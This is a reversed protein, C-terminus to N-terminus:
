APRGSDSAELTLVSVDRATVGTGNPEKRLVSLVFGSRRKPEGRQGEHARAAIQWAKEITAM